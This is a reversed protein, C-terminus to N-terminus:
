QRKACKRAEGKASKYHANAQMVKCATLVVFYLLLFMCMFDVFVIMAASNASAVEAPASDPSVMGESSGGSGM